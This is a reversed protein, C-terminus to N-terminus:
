LAARTRWFVFSLEMGKRNCAKEPRQARRCHPGAAALHDAEGGIRRRLYHRCASAQQRIIDRSVLQCVQVHLHSGLGGSSDRPNCRWQQQRGHRAALLWVGDQGFLDPSPTVKSDPQHFPVPGRM